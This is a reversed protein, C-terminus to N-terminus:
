DGTGMGKFFKRKLLGHWDTFDGQESDQAIHMEVMNLRASLNDFYYVAIAEATKPVIAAGFELEGHHSIIIHELLEPIHPNDWTIKSAAERVMDRGLLLHGLLQGEFSYRPAIPRELERVKGIDHLIGGATAMGQDLASTTKAYHHVGGAVELTHELLGGLYAHHYQVAAPFTRFAEENEAILLTTLERLPESSISSILDTLESWMEDPDRASAPVLIGPDFGSIKGTEKEHEELRRISEVIIQLTNRYTETRGEVFVFDGEDFQSAFRQTAEAWARAPITGSKDALLIELYADGSRTARQTKQKALFCQTIRQGPRMDQILVHMLAYPVEGHMYQSLREACM